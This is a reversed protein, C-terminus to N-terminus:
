HHQDLLEVIEGGFQGILVQQHLPALDDHAPPAPVHRRFAHPLPQRDSAGVPLADSEGCGPLDPAVIYAVAALMPMARQFMRASNPTGHLLLLCPKSPEGATLYSLDTGGCLRLRQRSARAADRGAM